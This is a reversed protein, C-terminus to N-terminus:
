ITQSILLDSNPVFDNATSNTPNSIKGLRTHIQYLVLKDRRCVHTCTYDSLDIQAFTAIVWSNEQEIGSHKGILLKPHRKWRRLWSVYTLVAITFRSCCGRVLMYIQWPGYAGFHVVKSKSRLSDALVSQPLSAIWPSLALLLLPTTHYLGPCCSFSLAVGGRWFGFCFLFGSLLFHLM